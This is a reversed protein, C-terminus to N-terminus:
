PVMAGAVRIPQLPPGAPPACADRLPAAVPVTQIEVDAQGAEETKRRATPESLNVTGFSAIGKTVPGFPMGTGLRVISEVLRPTFAGSM